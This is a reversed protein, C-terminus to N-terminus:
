GLWLKACISAVLALVVAAMWRLVRLERGLEAM